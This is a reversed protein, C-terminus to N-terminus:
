RKKHRFLGQCQQKQEKGCNSCLYPVMVSRIKASGRMNSIMNFQHVIVASCRELYVERPPSSFKSVFSVWNGVGGSNIRDIGGLDIIVKTEKRELIQSLDSKETITGSLTCLLSGTEEKIDCSLQNSM